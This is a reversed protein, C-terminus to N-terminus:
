NSTINIASTISLFFLSFMVYAQMEPHLVPRVLHAGSVGSEHQATQSWLLNFCGVKIAGPEEWAIFM